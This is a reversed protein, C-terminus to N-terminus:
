PKPLGSISQISHSSTSRAGPFIPAPGDNLVRADLGFGDHPIEFKSRGNLLNVVVERRRRHICDALNEGEGVFM